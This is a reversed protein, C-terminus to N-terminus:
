LGAASLRAGIPIKSRPVACSEFLKGNAFRGCELLNGDKAWMVGFGRLENFSWEGEYVVGNASTLMGLGNQDGHFFDGEYRDGDFAVKGQGHNKGNRWQGSAEDVRRRPEGAASVFKAFPIESSPVPCQEVLQDDPWCGFPDHFVEGVKDSEVCLGNSLYDAWQDEVDSFTLAGLGDWADCVFEGFYRDDSSYMKKGRGHLKGDRWQGSAAESGDARYKTGEGHPVSDENCDGVYHGGDPLLLTLKVPAARAAAAVCPSLFM